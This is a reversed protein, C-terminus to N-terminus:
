VLMCMVGCTSIRGSCNGSGHSRVTTGVTDHWSNYTPHLTPCHMCDHESEAVGFTTSMRITIGEADDFTGGWRTLIRLVCTGASLM